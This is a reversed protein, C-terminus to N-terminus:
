LHEVEGCVVYLAKVPDFSSCWCLIARLQPVLCGEGALSVFSVLMVPVLKCSKALVLLPYNIYRLSADSIGALSSVSAALWYIDKM